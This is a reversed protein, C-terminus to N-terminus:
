IILQKLGTDEGIGISLSVTKSWVVKLQWDISWFTSVVVVVMLSEHIEHVPVLLNVVERRPIVLNTM